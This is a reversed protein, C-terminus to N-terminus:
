VTDEFAVETFVRPNFPIHDAAVFEARLVHPGPGVNTLTQTLSYRTSVLKGDLTLHIHGRDPRIKRTTISVVKANRLSVRVIVTRTHVTQGNAPSIISVQAPSSPRPVASPLVNTPASNGGCATATSISVVM